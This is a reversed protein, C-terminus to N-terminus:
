ALMGEKSNQLTQYISIVDDGSIESMERFNQIENEDLDTVLGVSSIGISNISILAVIASKCNKCKIHILQASDLEELIRVEAPNYNFHCVPCHSIIKLGEPFKGFQSNSKPPTIDRM